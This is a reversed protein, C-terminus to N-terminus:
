CCRPLAPRPPPLPSSASPPRPLPASCGVHAAHTAQSAKGSPGADNELGADDHMGFMCMRSAQQWAAAPQSSPAPFCISCCPRVEEIGPITNVGLRKLTSQLRKDDTSTTKHVAKKKRLPPCSRLLPLPPMLCCCCCCCRMVGFRCPLCDRPCAARCPPPSAMRQWACSLKCADMGRCAAPTLSHRKWHRVISGGMPCRRGAARELAGRASQQAAHTAVAASVAARHGQRRHPGRGGDESPAGREDAACRPMLREHPAAPRAPSPPLHRGPPPPQRPQARRCRRCAFQGTWRDGAWNLAPSRAGPPASGAPWGSAPTSGAQGAGSGPTGWRERSSAPGAAHAHLGGPAGGAAM